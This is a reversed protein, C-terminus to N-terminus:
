KADEESESRAFLDKMALDVSCCNGHRISPSLGARRLFGVSPVYGLGGRSELGAPWPFPALPSGTALLNAADAM